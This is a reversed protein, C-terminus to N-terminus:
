VAAVDGASCLAQPAVRTEVGDAPTSRGAEYRASQYSPRTRVATRVLPPRQSPRPPPVTVRPPPPLRASQTAATPDSGTNECM